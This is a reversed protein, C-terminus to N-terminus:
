RLISLKLSSPHITDHFITQHASKMDTATALPESTGLNRVFRPHAGSSVQLRIKQGKKFHFATPWLNFNIKLSENIKQQFNEPQLRIINDCINISNGKRDVVCLRAFFDTYDLSSNVYLEVSMYGVIEIVSNLPESSYILVDKRSELENNKQSGAGSRLLTGGVNPTPNHPEYDYEDPPSDIPNSTSLKGEPHLFWTQFTANSPPFQQFERWINVGMVFIRVPNNRHNNSSNKLFYNFWSISERLGAGLGSMQSHSWPGITLYPQNGNDCLTRYDQLQWPLFIDYWGSVMCVPVTVKSIEKHICITDWFEANKEKDLFLNWYPVKENFFVEPINILPLYNYAQELQKNSKARQSRSSKEQTIIGVVWDLRSQFSFSGNPYAMSNFESATITPAITKLEPGAKTAIAWQTLGMYSGGLTAFLGQFWDQQKMWAITALGDDQEYKYPFFEGGSGFTGRCSQVLVQYGREAVLRGYLVGFFSKRGYPTRVLIVPANKIKKPFYHDTLLTIGDKAPIIIDEILIVKRSQVPPLKLFFGLLRSFLTM